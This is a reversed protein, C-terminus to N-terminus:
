DVRSEDDGDDRSEVLRGGSGEEEVDEMIRLVARRCGDNRRENWRDGRRSAVVAASGTAVVDVAEVELPGSALEESAGRRVAGETEVCRKTIDPRTKAITTTPPRVRRVSDPKLM